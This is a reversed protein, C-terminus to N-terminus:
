ELTMALVSNKDVHKDTKSKGEELSNKVEVVSPIKVLKNDLFNSIGSSSLDKSDHRKLQSCDHLSSAKDDNEKQLAPTGPLYGSINFGSQNLEPDRDREGGLKFSGKTKIM